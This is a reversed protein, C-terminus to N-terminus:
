SATEQGLPAHKLAEARMEAALTAMEAIRAGLLTELEIPLGEPMPNQGARWRQYTRYSVGLAEAMAVGGQEGFLLTQVRLLLTPTM